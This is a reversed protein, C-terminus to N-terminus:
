TITKDSVKISGPLSDHATTCWVAGSWDNYLCAQRLLSDCASSMTWRSSGAIILLSSSAWTLVVWLFDGNRKQCMEVFKGAPRDLAAGFLDGACPDGQPGSRTRRISPTVIDDLKVVTESNRHERIWAAILVPPVGMDM